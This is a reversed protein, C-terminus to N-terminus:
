HPSTQASIIKSRIRGAQNLIIEAKYSANIPQICLTGNTQSFGNGLFTISQHSPFGKFEFVILPDLVAHHLIHPTESHVNVILLNGKWESSCSQGDHSPCLTIAQRQQISLTQTLRILHTMQDLAIKFKIRQQQEQWYHAALGVLIGLVVMVFALEILTFGRQQPHHPSPPHMKRM